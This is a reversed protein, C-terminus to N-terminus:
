CSLPPLLLDATVMRFSVMRWTAAKLRRRGITADTSALVSAVPTLLHRALRHDACSNYIDVLEALCALTVTVIRTLSKRRTLLLLLLLLQCDRRTAEFAFSTSDSSKGPRDTLQLM